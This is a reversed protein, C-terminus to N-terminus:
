VRTTSKKFVCINFINILDKGTRANPLDFPHAMHGAVGGELLFQAFTIM